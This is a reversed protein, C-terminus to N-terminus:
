GGAVGAFFIGQEGSLPILISQDVFQKFDGGVSEITVWPQSKGTKSPDFFDKTLDLLDADSRHLFAHKVWFRAAYNYFSYEDLFGDLDAEEALENCRFDDFLLYTLCLKALPLDQDAPIIKYRSYPSCQDSPDIALLFEEVTFHALELRGGDPTRRVLSSCWKLVGEEDPRADLDMETDGETISIAVLLEDTSLPEKSCIIWTLVRQVLLRSCRITLRRKSCFM